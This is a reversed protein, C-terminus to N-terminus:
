TEGEPLRYLALVELVCAKHFEGSAPKIEVGPLRVGYEDNSKDLNLVWYCMQSLRREVDGSFHDWELWIRQEAYSQYHKTQLQQEKAYSKWFVHKLSDGPQYTKFDQFDDSGMAACVDGVESDHIQTRRLKSAVPRPYVLANIDLSVWTWARLLGLPYFTEILLRSPTFRGRQQAPLHLKILAESTDRLSVSETASPGWSFVVDYYERPSNRAVLVEFEIREGAFAPLARVATITLGSLNAFTHLIAVVFVSALLFVLAFAMNNQYNIAALLMVLLLAAFWLGARSPFIFIRRLDLTVARATPIRRRVWRFFRRRFHSKIDGAVTM